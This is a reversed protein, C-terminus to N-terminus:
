DFLDDKWEGFDPTGGKEGILTYRDDVDAEKLVAVMNGCKCFAFPRDSSFGTDCVLNETPEGNEWLLTQCHPCRLDNDYVSKKWVIIKAM